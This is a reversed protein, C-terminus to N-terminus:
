ALTGGVRFLEDVIEDAQEDTWGFEVKLEDKAALIMPDLRKVGTTVMWEEQVDADLTAVYADVAEKLEFERLARRLQVPGLTASERWAELQAQESPTHRAVVVKEGDFTKGAESPDETTTIECPYSNHAQLFAESSNKGLLTKGIRKPLNYPSGTPNNNEIQHRM